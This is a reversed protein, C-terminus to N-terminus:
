FTPPLWPPLGLLILLLLRLASPILLLLLSLTESLLLQDVTAFTAYIDVQTVLFLSVMSSVSSFSAPSFGKKIATNASALSYHTSSNILHSSM